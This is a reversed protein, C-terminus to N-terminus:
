RAGSQDGSPFRKAKTPSVSSAAERMTALASPVSGLVSAGAEFVLANAQDGSPLRMAKAEVTVAFTGTNSRTSKTSGSFPRLRSRVSAGLMAKKQDGPPSRKARIPRDSCLPWRM